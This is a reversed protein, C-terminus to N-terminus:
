EGPSKAGPASTASLDTPHVWELPNGYNMVTAIGVVVLALVGIIWPTLKDIKGSEKSELM